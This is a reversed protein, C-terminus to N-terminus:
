YKYNKANKPIKFEMNLLGGVVSEKHGGVFIAKFGTILAQDFLNFNSV